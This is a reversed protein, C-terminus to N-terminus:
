RRLCQPQGWAAQSAALHHPLLQFTGPYNKFSILVVAVLIMVVLPKLFHSRWLSALVFGFVLFVIPFTFGLYHNFVSARYLSLFIISVFLFASMVIKAKKRDGRDKMSLSRVLMYVFFAVIVIKQGLTEAVIAFYQGIIRASMSVLAVLVGGLDHLDRFHSESAAIPHFFQIFARTNLWNHRTDFILLPSLSFIFIAIAWLTSKVFLPNIAHARVQILLELIWILGICGILILAIYHLQFLIACCLGVLIWYGYQRNLTKWVAWVAVLSFLPVINPNWSFRVNEIVVPSIAYLLMALGAGMKGIMQKGLLYM